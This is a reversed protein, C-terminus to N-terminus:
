TWYLVLPLQYITGIHEECLLIRPWDTSSQSPVLVAGAFRDSVQLQQRKQSAVIHSHLRTEVRM